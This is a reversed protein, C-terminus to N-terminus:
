RTALTREYRNLVRRIERGTDVPNASPPVNVTIYISNGLGSRGARDLPVVIEDRAGEGIMGLVGGRGGRVLGGEAFPQINPTNFTFSPVAVTPGYKGLPDYSGGGITFSLNNWKSIIWNVSSRFADKVGDFMGSAANWIRGPMGAITDVIWNATGVIWDKVATFGNKITDWNRSILLVATGIPGTLIALLLPWNDSIWGWVGQVVGLVADFAGTVINRFTESHQWALILGAVLAAIGIVILVIPNASLAANLLWQAATWAKTAAEVALTAVGHAVTAATSAVTSAIDAAQAAVKKGIAVAAKGFSAWLAEGAGALDAAGQALVMVNGSKLGSIVDQTGTISDKFGIFKQEASGAGEGFKDFSENIDRGANEAADASENMSKKFSDADGLVVTKIIATKTSM